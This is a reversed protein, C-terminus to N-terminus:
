RYENEFWQNIKTLEAALTPTCDFRSVQTMELAWSLIQNMAIGIEKESYAPCTQSLRELDRSSLKQEVYRDPAGVYSDNPLQARLMAFLSRRSQQVYETANWLCGRTLSKRVKLALLNLTTIPLKPGFPNQDSTTKRSEISRRIVGTLDDLVIGTPEWFFDQADTHEIFGIDVSFAHDDDFVATLLEGFWPYSPQPFTLRVHESKALRELYEDRKTRADDKVLCFLDCDSWEDAQRRSLSGGLLLGTTSPDEIVRDIISGIWRARTEVQAPLLSGFSLLDYLLAERELSM